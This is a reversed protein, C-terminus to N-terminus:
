TRGEVSCTAQGPVNAEKVTELEEILKQENWWFDLSNEEFNVCLREESVLGFVADIAPSMSSYNLSISDSGGNPDLLDIGTEKRLAMDKQLPAYFVSQMFVEGEQNEEPIDEWSFGYSNESMGPMASAKSDNMRYYLPTDDFNACAMPQSAFGTWLGMYGVPSGIINQGDSVSYYADATQGSANAKLIIPTAYSPSMTISDAEKSVSLVIGRNLMNVEEFSEEISTSVTKKGSGKASIAEGSSTLALEPGSFGLGYGQRDIERAENLGVEGNFPLYYFPNPTLPDRIKALRVKITATPETESYFFEYQDQEFDFELKVDYLGTTIEEKPFSLRNPDTFYLYWPSEQSSYWTPTLFSVNRYYYDFDNRFDQNITDGILYAQFSELAKADSVKGQSGYERIENLRELLAISFQTPDCYVFDLGQEQKKSCTDFGIRDWDWNLLVKPKQGPGTGGMRGDKGICHNQTGGFLEAHFRQEENWLLANEVPIHSHKHLTNAEFEDTYTLKLGLKNLPISAPMSPPRTAKVEEVILLTEGPDVVMRGFGPLSCELGAAECGTTQAGTVIARVGGVNSVTWTIYFKKEAETKDFSVLQSSSGNISLLPQVVIVDFEERIVGCTGNNRTALVIKVHHIGPIQFLYEVPNQNGSYFRGGGFCSDGPVIRYNDGVKEDDVFLDIAHVGTSHEGDICVNVYTSFNSLSLTTMLPVIYTTKGDEGQTSAFPNDFSLSYTFSTPDQRLTEYDANYFCHDGGGFGGCSGPDTNIQQALCSQILFVLALATIAAVPIKSSTNTM